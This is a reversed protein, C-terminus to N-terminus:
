PTIASVNALVFRSYPDGAYVLTTNAIPLASACTVGVILRLPITKAVKNGFAFSENEGFFPVFDKSKTM